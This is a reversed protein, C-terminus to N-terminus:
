FVMGGQDNLYFYDPHAYTQIEEVDIEDIKGNSDQDMPLTIKWHSLDFKDAPVLNTSNGTDQPKDGGNSSCAALISLSLP